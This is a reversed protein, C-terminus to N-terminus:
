KENNIKSLHEQKFEKFAEIMDNFEAVANDLLQNLYDEDPYKEETKSTEWKKVVHSLKYVFPLVLQLKKSHMLGSLCGNSYIFIESEFNNNTEKLINLKVEFENDDYQFEGKLHNLTKKNFLGYCIPLSPLENGGGSTKISNPTNDNSVNKPNSLGVKLDDFFDITIEPSISEGLSLKWLIWMLFSHSFNIEEFDVNNKELANKLYENPCNIFKKTGIICIFNLSPLIFTDVYSPKTGDNIVFTNKYVNSDINNNNELKCFDEDDSNYVIIM